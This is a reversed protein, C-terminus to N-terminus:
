ILIKWNEDIFGVIIGNESIAIRGDSMYQNINSLFLSQNQQAFVFDSLFLQSSLAFIFAVVLKNRM